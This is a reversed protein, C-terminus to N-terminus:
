NADVTGAGQPAAPSTNTLRAATGESAKRQGGKRCHGAGAWTGQHGSEASDKIKAPQPLLWPAARPKATRPEAM